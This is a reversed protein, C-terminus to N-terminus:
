SPIETKNKEIDNYTFPNKQVQGCCPSTGLGFIFGVDCYRCLQELSLALDKKVQQAVPFELNNNKKIEEESQKSSFHASILSKQTSFKNIVELM